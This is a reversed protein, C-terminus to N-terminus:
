QKQLIELIEKVVDDTLGLRVVREIDGNPELTFAAIFRNEDGSDNIHPDYTISIRTELGRKEDIGCDYMVAIKKLKM